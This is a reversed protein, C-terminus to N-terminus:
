PAATVQRQLVFTTSPGPLGPPPNSVFIATQDSWWVTITVSGYGAFQCNSTYFWQWTGTFVRSKKVRHLVMQGAQDNVHPCFVSPRQRIVQDTYTEANRARTRYFRLIGNAFSWEGAITRGARGSAAHKHRVTLRAHKPPVGPRPGHPASVAVAAALMPVGLLRVAGLVASVSWKATDPTDYLRWFLYTM